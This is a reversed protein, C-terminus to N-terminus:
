TSPVEILTALKREAFLIGLAWAAREPFDEGAPHARLAPFDLEDYSRHPLDAYTARMYADHDWRGSALVYVSRDMSHEPGSAVHRAWIVGLSADLPKNGEGAGHFRLEHRAFVAKARDMGEPLISDPGSSLLLACPQIAKCYPYHAIMMAAQEPLRTTSHEVTGRCDECVWAVWSRESGAGPITEVRVKARHLQVANLTSPRAGFLGPLVLPSDPTTLLAIM